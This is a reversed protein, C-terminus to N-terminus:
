SKMRFSLSFLANAPDPEPRLLHTPAPVWPSRDLFAQSAGHQWLAARPGLWERWRTLMGSCVLSAPLRKKRNGPRQKIKWLLRSKGSTELYVTSCVPVAPVNVLVSLGPTLGEPVGPFAQPQPSDPSVLSLSFVTCCTPPLARPPPCALASPAPVRPWLTSEIHDPTCDENPDKIRRSNSLTRIVSPSTLMAANLFM